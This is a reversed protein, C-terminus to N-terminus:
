IKEIDAGNIWARHTDDAKVDYWKQQISDLKVVVSDLMEVKAGEHLMFAEEAKSRPERPSTSLITVNKMVVAYNSGTVANATKVAMVNAIICVVLFLFGGFFGIKRLLVVNSFFYVAVACLLLLFSAIAVVAWGNPSALNRFNRVFSDVINENFDLKDTLKTKVFDLNVQADENNPDLLLAREYYLVAKGLRGSKYYANGINYYLDSSIGEKQMIEEYIDVAESYKDSMYAEEAKETLSQASVTLSSLCILVYLIYRKM